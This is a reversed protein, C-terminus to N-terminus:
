ELRRRLRMTLISRLLLPSGGGDSVLILARSGDALAPGLCMGEYNAFGGGSQYLLRKTAPAFATDKLSAFGSVETAGSVDAHYLRFEFSPFRRRVAFTRELVLLSGDPLVSLESVGSVAKPHPESDLRDTRYAWQGAERWDSQPTDRTFKVLRILGGSMASSRDGDAPLTDESATWLALGDESLALSELGLNNHPRRLASPVPATRHATGDTSSHERITSTIEDAVWATHSAADWVCAEPDSAGHLPLPAGFVVGNTSLSGDTPNIELTLPLLCADTDDVVLYSNGGLWAIGSLQAPTDTPRAVESVPEVHWHADGSPAHTACSSIVAAIWLTHVCLCLFASARLSQRPETDRHRQTETDFGRHM